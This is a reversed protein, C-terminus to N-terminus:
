NNSNDVFAIIEPFFRKFEEAYKTYDNKLSEVANEMGSKYGTRRSMGNFVRQLDQMSAYGALWNQAIMFPLIRKSRGPLILYNRVLMKYASQVFDTLDISSYDDWNRALFHDYYIDVIVRSYLGYQPRLRKASQRFVPHKDTFTDIARHLIIGRQIDKEYKEYQKGKVADAFFNGLIVKEIDPSLYLHALFNMPTTIGAFNLCITCCQVSNPSKNLITKTLAEAGTKILNTKTPTAM